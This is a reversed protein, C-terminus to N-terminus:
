ATPRRRVVVASAAEAAKKGALALLHGYTDSTIGISSHRMRKSVVAIDVGGAIQLSAATHWTSHLTTHPLGFKRVLRAFKKTVYDPHWGLGDERTFVLGTDQWLQGWAMREELQEKKWAKLVAVTADDMDVTALSEDTKPRGEIVEHGVTTRQWDM